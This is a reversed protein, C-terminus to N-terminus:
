GDPDDDYEYDIVTAGGDKRTRARAPRKQGDITLNLALQREDGAGLRGKVEAITERLPALKTEIAASVQAENLRPLDAVEEAVAAVARELPASDFEPAKEAIAVLEARLDAFQRGVSEEFDNRNDIDGKLEELQEEVKAEHARRRAAAARLPVVLGGGEVPVNPAVGLDPPLSNVIEALTAADIGSAKLIQELRTRDVGMSALDNPLKDFGLMERVDNQAGRDTLHFGLPALEALARAIVEVNRAQIKSVTLIPSHNDAADQGFNVRVIERIVQRQRERRIYHALSQVALFFPDIQVQATARSGQDTSGLQSFQQLGSEAIQNSYWKLLPVFDPITTAGNLIEMGWESDNKSGGEPVPFHAYGREHTRVGRGMAKAKQEADPNDPHWVVPLGSAHRDYAIGGAIMLAKKLRWAGWAPRLVSVGDWTNGEREFLMYSLKDGPIPSANSINQEVSVIKGRTRNVKWITRPPRFALRDLPRVLHEDGDKDRWTTIDGWVLEEICPGYRLISLAQQLSEDWSLDMQGDQQELGLNWAVMDRIAVDVPDAEDRANLGWSASRVPLMLFLLLSKVSADTKAMEDYVDFKASGTLEPNVDPGGGYMDQVWTEGDYGAEGSAPEQLDGAPTATLDRRRFFSTRLNM